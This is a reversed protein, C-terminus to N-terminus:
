NSILDFGCSKKNKLSSIAKSIEVLESFINEKEINDILLTKIAFQPNVPERNLDQFYEKWHNLGLQGKIQSPYSMYFPGTNKKNNNEKLSDPQEIINNNYERRTSKRLKRYWKLFSFFSGRVLPNKAYKELLKVKDSLGKKMTVLTFNFWKPQKAVM